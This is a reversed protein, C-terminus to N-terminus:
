GPLGGPRPGYKVGLPRRQIEGQYLRVVPASSGARTVGISIRGLPDLHSLWIIREISDAMANAQAATAAAPLQANVGVNNQGADLGSTVDATVTAGPLAELQRIMTDQSKQRTVAAESGPPPGGDCGALLGTSVAALVVCIVALASPRRV